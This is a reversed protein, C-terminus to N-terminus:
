RKILTYNLESEIRDGNIDLMELANLATELYRLQSEVDESEPNLVVTRYATGDMEKNGYAWQGREVETHGVRSSDMYEERLEYQTPRDKEDSYLTLSTRIGSCDACPLMGSYLAKDAQPNSPTSSCGALALGSALGFTLLIKKM